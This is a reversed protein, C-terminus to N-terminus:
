RRESEAMDLISNLIVYAAAKSSSKETSKLWIFRRFDERYCGACGAYVGLLRSLTKPNTAIGSKKILMAEHERRWAEKASCTFMCILDVIRKWREMRLFRTVRRFQQASLVNGGSRPYKRAYTLWCLADFLGRDLLIVDYKNPQRVNMGELITMLAYCAAWTNYDFLDEKLYEPAVSAGEQPALVALGHRRLFHRVISICTSKGSRPTGAFEVILPRASSEPLPRYRAVRGSLARVEKDTPSRRPIAKPIPRKMM